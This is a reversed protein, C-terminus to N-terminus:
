LRQKNTNGKCLQSSLAQVWARAPRAGARASPGLIVRGVCGEGGTQVGVGVGM